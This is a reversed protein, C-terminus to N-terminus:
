IRSRNMRSIEKDDLKMYGCKACFFGKEDEEANKSFCKPCKM